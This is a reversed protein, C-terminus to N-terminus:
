SSIRTVWANRIELLLYGQLGFLISAMLLHLPQSGFPFGFYNMAVGSIIITSLTVLIPTIKTYKLNYKKIRYAALIHLVVLLISFSRHLYFIPNPNELWAMRGSEGLQDSRHDIFQRVQTGLIVQILSLILTVSWINLLTKDPKQAPNSRGSRYVLWTLVLVILLAMVMHLTIRVPALVSYVVTAGLWAQFGMGFVTAWAALVLIKKESWWSIATIAMVLVSLGALAGLLRNIYETWTHAANFIAYDHRTYPEWHTPDFQTGSTFDATALLLQESQIIVQGKQYIHNPTWVLDAAETPPIFYGFCKPWDPCGMGSGTMRVVAGALIVLYVLILSLRTLKSYAKKM